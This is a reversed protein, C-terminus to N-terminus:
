SSSLDSHFGTNLMQFILELTGNHVRYDQILYLFFSEDSQSGFRIVGGLSM